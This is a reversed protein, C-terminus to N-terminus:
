HGSPRSQTLRGMSRNVLVEMPAKVHVIRDPMPVLRAFQELDSQRFPADSYVFLYYATLVTGEDALVRVNAGARRALEHMGIRRVINRMYNVKAFASPAHRRLRDAAFSAFDRNQDFARLFSPLVTVDAVLNIATSGAALVGSTM